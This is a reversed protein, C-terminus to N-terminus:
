KKADVEKEEYEQEGDRHVKTLDHVLVGAGDEPGKGIGARALVEDGIFRPGGLGAKEEYKRNMLIARYPGHSRGEKESGCLVPDISM